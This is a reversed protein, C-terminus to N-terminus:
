KQTEEIFQDLKTSFQTRLGTYHELFADSDLKPIDSGGWVMGMTGPEYKKYDEETYKDGLMIVPCGCLRAIESLASVPDYSYLVECENLLESLWQQDYAKQKTIEVATDPHYNFNLGKGVFFATKNRKKKNNKFLHTNIIPLFFHSHKDDVGITNFIESFIYIIDTKDFETQGSEWQGTVQNVGGMVGPENLLYRVVKNAGLENGKYIDSYIGIFDPNEFVANLMAVQGKALLWGYLGYLVRIGGSATDFQPCRISYPKM